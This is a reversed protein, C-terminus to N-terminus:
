ISIFDAHLQEKIYLNLTREKRTNINRKHLLENVKYYYVIKGVSFQTERFTESIGVNNKTTFM